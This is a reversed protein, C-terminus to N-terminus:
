GSMGMGLSIVVAYDPPQIKSEPGFQALSSSSRRHLIGTMELGSFSNYLLFFFIRFRRVSEHPILSM